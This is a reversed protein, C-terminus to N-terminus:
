YALPRAGMHLDASVPKAIWLRDNQQMPLPCERLAAVHGSHQEQDQQARKDHRARSPAGMFCTTFLKRGRNDDMRMVAIVDVFMVVSTNSGIFCVFTRAVGLLAQRM